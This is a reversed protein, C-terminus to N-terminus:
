GDAVGLILVGLDHEGEFALGLLIRAMDDTGGEAVIAVVPERYLGEVGVVMVECGADIGVLRLIPQALALCKDCRRKGKGVAYLALTPHAAIEVAPPALVAEHM